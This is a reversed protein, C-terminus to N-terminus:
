CCCCPNLTCTIQSGLNCTVVIGICCRQIISQRWFVIKLVTFVEFALALLLALLLLCLALLLLLLLLLMLAHTTTPKSWSHWCSQAPARHSPWTPRHASWAHSSATPSTDLTQIKLIDWVDLTQVRSLHLGQDLLDVLLLLLLLLLLLV